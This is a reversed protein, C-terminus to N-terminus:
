FLLVSVCLVGAGISLFGAVAGSTSGGPTSGGPTPVAIEPAAHAVSVTPAALATLNVSQLAPSDRLKTVVAGGLTAQSLSGTNKATDLNNTVTTAEAADFKTVTTVVVEDPVGHGALSRRRSSLRRAATASLRGYGVGNAELEYGAVAGVASEVAERVAATTESVIAASEDSGAVVEAPLSDFTLKNESEVQMKAVSAGSLTVTTYTAAPATENQLRRRLMRM